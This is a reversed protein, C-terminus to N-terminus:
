FSENILLQQDFIDTYFINVSVDRSNTKVMEIRQISKVGETTSVTKIISRRILDENNKRSLINFWDIGFERDVFWDNRVSRLRTVIRQRIAKSGSIYGSKGSGFTWDGSRTIASVKM